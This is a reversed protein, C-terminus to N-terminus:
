SDFLKVRKKITYKITLTGATLSEGAIWEIFWIDGIRM